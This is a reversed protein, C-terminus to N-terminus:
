SPVPRSINHRVDHHQSRTRQFVKPSTDPRAVGRRADIGNSFIRIKRRWIDPLLLIFGCNVSPMIYIFVVVHSVDRLSIINPHGGYRFLIEVEEQCDRKTKDIIQFFFFFNLFCFRVFKKLLTYKWLSSSARRKIYADRACRSVGPALNKSSKM